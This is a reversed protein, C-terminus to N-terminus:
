PSPPVTFGLGWSGLVGLGLFGLFCLVGLGWLGWFGLFGWLFHFLAIKKVAGMTDSQTWSRGMTDWQTGGM